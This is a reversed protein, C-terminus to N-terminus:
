DPLGRDPRFRRAAVDNLCANNVPPQNDQGSTGTTALSLQEINGNIRSVGELSEAGDRATGAEVAAAVGGGVCVCARV